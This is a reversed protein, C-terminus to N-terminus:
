SDPTERSKNPRYSLGLQRAILRDIFRKPLVTGLLNQFRGTAITYRPKPHQATLAHMVLESVKEAPIGKRGNAVVHDKFSAIAQRYPTSSFPTVDVAAAKEWIETAISGPGIVIVDFGFLMLERRLSDSLGELAVKSACYAGLFPFGNKGSVSSMMVIRGPRGQRDRDAGLLPAFAQTVILQGTVNIRLQHEFDEIKQYLLPGPVGIGANNVLGFLTESGLAEGVQKAAAAVAVQDTVDFILPVFSNGLENAMREADAQNRVSGFVRFGSALLTKVCSRGIGTSVGTVVVSKM